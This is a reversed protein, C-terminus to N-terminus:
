YDFEGTLDDSEDAADDNFDDALEINSNEEDENLLSEDSSSPTKTTNTELTKLIRDRIGNRRSQDINEFISLKKIIGKEAKEVKDSDRTNKGNKVAYDQLADLLVYSVNCDVIRRMYDLYKNLHYINYTKSSSNTWVESEAYYAVDILFQFFM